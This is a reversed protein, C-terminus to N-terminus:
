GNHAVARASEVPVDFKRNIKDALNEVGALLRQLNQDTKLSYDRLDNIAESQRTLDGEISTIKEVVRAQIRDAFVELTQSATEHMERQVREQLEDFKPKFSQDILEPIKAELNNVASGLDNIRADQKESAVQIAARVQEVESDRSHIREELEHVTPILLPGPDKLLTEVNGIRNGLTEMQDAIPSM